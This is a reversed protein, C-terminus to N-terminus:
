LKLWQVWAAQVKGGAQLWCLDQGNVRIPFDSASASVTVQVPISHNAPFLTQRYGSEDLAYRVPILITLDNGDSRREHFTYYYGLPLQLLTRTAGSAAIRGLMERVPLIKNNSCFLLSDGRHLLVTYDKTAQIALIDGRNAPGNQGTAAADLIAREQRAWALADAEQGSLYDAIQAAYQQLLATDKYGRDASIAVALLLAGALLYLLLRKIM